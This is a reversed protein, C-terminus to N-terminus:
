RGSPIITLPQLLIDYQWFWYGYYIGPALTQAQYGAEGKTAIIHGQPLQKHEGFLVFKVTVLGIKDEPVVIIGFLRFVLRYFIVVLILVVLPIVFILIQEM